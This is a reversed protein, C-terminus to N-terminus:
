FTYLKEKFNPILMFEYDSKITVMASTKQWIQPLLFKHDM